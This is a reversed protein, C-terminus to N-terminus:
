GTMTCSTRADALLVPCSLRMSLLLTAHKAASYGWTPGGLNGHGPQAATNLDRCLGTSSAARTLGASLRLTVELQCPM